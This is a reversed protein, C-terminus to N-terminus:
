SKVYYTASCDERLVTETRGHSWFPGVTPGCLSMWPNSMAEKDDMVVWDTAGYIWREDARM